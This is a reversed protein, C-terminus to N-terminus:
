EDKAAVPDPTEARTSEDRGWEAGVAPARLALLSALSTIAVYAVSAPALWPRPIVVDTLWSLRNAARVHADVKGTRGAVRMARNGRRVRVLRRVLDRTRRPAAVVTVVDATQHKEHPAFLSDLFLDDAVMDPFRDFRSRGEESLAILGRGFLGTQFVPLRQNIAFYARLLLPRGVLDLQRRPVVALPAPITDRGGTPVSFAQCLTRVSGAHVVIDADLYVRPFGRAVADGANLAAPKSAVEIELVRVSPRASALAATGDHCGNAVVIVDLEGPETGALLADLCRGIVAAEDHAAIVVSTM